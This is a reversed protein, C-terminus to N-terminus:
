ALLRPLVLVSSMNTETSELAFYYYYTQGTYGRLHLHTTTCSFKNTNNSLNSGEDSFRKDLHYGDLNSWDLGTEARGLNVIM